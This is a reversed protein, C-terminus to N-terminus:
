GYNLHATLNVLHAYWTKHTGFAAQLNNTATNNHRCGRGRRERGRWKKSGMRTGLSTLADIANASMGM